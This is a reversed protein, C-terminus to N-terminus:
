VQRNGWPRFPAEFIAVTVHVRFFRCLLDVKLHSGFSSRWHFLKDFCSSHIIELRNVGEQRLLEHTNIADVLLTLPRGQHNRCTPSGDMNDM